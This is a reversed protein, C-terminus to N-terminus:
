GKKKAARCEALTLMHSLSLGDKEDFTFTVIHGGMWGDSRFRVEYQKESLRRGGAFGKDNDFGVATDLRFGDEFIRQQGPDRMEPFLFPVTCETWREFGILVENDPYRDFNTKLRASGDDSFEIEIEDVGFFKEPLKCKAIKAGLANRLMPSKKAMTLTQMRTWLAKCDADNEPLASDSILGEDLAKKIHKFFIRAMITHDEDNSNCVFCMDWEPVVVGLQGCGGQLRFGGVSNMWLYFGYGPEKTKIQPSSAMKVLGEDLIRKGNWVGGGAYLMTLKYLARTTMCFTPLDDQDGNKACRIDGMELPEFLRPRLFESISLGTFEKIIIALMDPAGNDYLFATGPRNVLPMKLFAEARKPSAKEMEPYSDKEHGCSMTLLHWVTLEKLFESPEKPAAWPILDLVPDQLGFLGEQVAFLTATSILVKGASCIRHVKEKGFPAYYGEFILKGHRSIVASHLEVGESEFEDLMDNLIKSAVGQSEPSFLRFDSM